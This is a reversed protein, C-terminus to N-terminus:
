DVGARGEAVKQVSGHMRLSCGSCGRTARFGSHGQGGAFRLRCIGLLM